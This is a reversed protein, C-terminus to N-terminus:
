VEEGFEPCPEEQAVALGADHRLTKLADVPGVTNDCDWDGWEEDVADIQSGLAPCDPQQAVSLAADYRLLKLGDVPNVLEDCDADGWM